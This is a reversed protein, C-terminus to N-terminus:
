GALVVGGGLPVLINGVIELEGGVECREVVAGGSIGSLPSVEFEDALM